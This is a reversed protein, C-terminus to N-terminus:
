FMSQEFAKAIKRAVNRVLKHRQDEDTSEMEYYADELAERGLMEIIMRAEEVYRDTYRCDKYRERTHDLIQENTMGEGINNIVRFLTWKSLHIKTTKKSNVKDLKNLLDACAIYAYMRDELGYSILERVMPMIRPCNTIHSNELENQGISSVEANKWLETPVDANEYYGDSFQGAFENNYLSVMEATAFKITSM